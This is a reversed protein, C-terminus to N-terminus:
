ALAAEVEDLAQDIPSRVGQSEGGMEVAYALGLLGIEPTFRSRDALNMTLLPCCLLAAKLRARWDPRLWGRKALELIVPILTLRLKSDLFMQRVPGLRHDHEVVIRDASITGTITLRDALVDPFYMWMAFTNHFLPKALDLLPDHRGAFAPDFYRLARAGVQLFVNGNHADGHGIISPAPEGPELLRASERVLTGLGDPYDQGNITWRAARIDPLDYWGGPLSIKGTDPYFRQYREGTLRHYFLQHVPANATGTPNDELTARYIGALARDADHQADTLTPLLGDDGNDIGWAVDFVSPDDVVEYVLLQRGYTTSSFVPQLVPYGAEALTAANYYEGIVSGPETHTKFFLSTGDPLELFGNFSNLSVALPRLRVSEVDPRFTERLFGLLMEEARPRDTFQLQQITFLLDDM